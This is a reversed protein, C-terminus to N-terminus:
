GRVELERRLEDMMKDVQWVDTNSDFRRSLRLNMADPFKDLLLPVLLMGDPKVGLAKLSRLDSEIRDYVKRIRKTDRDDKVSALNTLSRMHSNVIVQTNGYRQKLIDVASDYNVDTATLGKISEEADGTVYGKLYTFKEIKTLMDNEDIAVKFADWFARYDKPEGSFKKIEYKPLKITTKPKVAPTVNGSTSPAPKAAAAVQEMAKQSQELLSAQKTDEEAKYARKLMVDIATIKEQINIQVQENLEIMDPIEADDTALLIEDDLQSLIEAKRRLTDRLGLLEVEMKIDFTALLDDIQKLLKTVHAKHGGRIKSKKDTDGM